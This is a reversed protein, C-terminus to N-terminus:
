PVRPLKSAAARIGPQASVGEMVVAYDIDLSYLDQAKSSLFAAPNLIAANVIPNKYTQPSVAESSRKFLYQCVRCKTAPGFDPPNSM